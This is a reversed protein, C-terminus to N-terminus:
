WKSIRNSFGRSKMNNIVTPSESFPGHKSCSKVAGATSGVVIRLREYILGQAVPVLENPRMLMIM